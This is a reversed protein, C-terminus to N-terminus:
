YNLLYGVRYPDTAEDGLPYLDAQRKAAEVWDSYIGPHSKM